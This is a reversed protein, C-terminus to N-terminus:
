RGRKGDGGGRVGQHDGDTNVWERGEGKGGWEPALAHQFLQGLFHPPFTELDGRPLAPGLAAGPGQTSLSAHM